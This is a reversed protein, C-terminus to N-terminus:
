PARPIKVQSAEGAGPPSTFASIWMKQHFTQPPIQSSSNRVLDLCRWQQQELPQVTCVGPTLDEVFGRTTVCVTLAHPSRARPGEMREMRTWAQRSWVSLKRTLTEKAFSKQASFFMNTFRQLLSLVTIMPHHSDNRCNRPFRPLNRPGRQQQSHGEKARLRGRGATLKELM